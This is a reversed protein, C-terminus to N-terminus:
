RGECKDQEVVGYLTPGGHSLDRHDRKMGTKKKGKKKEKKREKEKMSQPKM